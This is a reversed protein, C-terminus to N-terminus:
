AACPDPPGTQCQTDLGRDLDGRREVLSLDRGNDAAACLWQTIEIECHRLSIRRDKKIHRQLEEVRRRNPDFGGAVSPAAVPQESIRDLSDCGFRKSENRGHRYLRNELKRAALAQPMQQVVFRRREGPLASAM